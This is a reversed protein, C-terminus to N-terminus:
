PYQEVTGDTYTVKSAVFKLKYRSDDKTLQDLLNPPLSWHGEGTFEGGPAM